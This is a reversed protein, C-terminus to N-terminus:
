GAEHMLSKRQDLSNITVLLGIVLTFPLILSVTIKFQLSKRKYIM